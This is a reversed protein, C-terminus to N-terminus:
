CIKNTRFLLHVIWKFALFDTRNNEIYRLRVSFIGNQIKILILFNAEDLMNNSWFGILQFMKYFICDVNYKLLKSNFGM